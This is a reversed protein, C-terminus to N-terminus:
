CGCRPSTVLVLLPLILDIAMKVRGVALAGASEGVAPAPRLDARRRASGPAGLADLATCCWARAIAPRILLGLERATFDDSAIAVQRDGAASSSALSVLMPAEGALLGGDSVARRACTPPRATRRRDRRLAAEDALVRALRGTAADDGVLVRRVPAPLAAAKRRALVGSTRRELVVAGFGYLGVFLRSVHSLSVFLVPQTVM